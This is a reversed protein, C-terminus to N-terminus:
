QRQILISEPIKYTKNSHLKQPQNTIQAKVTVVIFYWLAILQKLSSQITV